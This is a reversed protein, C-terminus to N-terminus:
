IFLRVLAAVLALSTLLNVVLQMKIVHRTHKLTAACDARCAAIDVTLDKINRELECREGHETNLQEELQIVRRQAQALADTAEAVVPDQVERYLEELPVGLAEAILTLTDERPDGVLKCNVYNNLASKSITSKAALKEYSIHKEKMIRRINVSITRNM